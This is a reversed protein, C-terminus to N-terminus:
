IEGSLTHDTVVTTGTQNSIKASSAVSLGNNRVALHSFCM